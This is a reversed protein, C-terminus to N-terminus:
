HGSLQYHYDITGIVNGDQDKVLKLRGIGDYIYYNIRNNEDCNSTIGMTPTYTYTVMQAAIPYLRLEDIQGSGSISISTQGSIKHEFCNWGNYSRILVPYGSQTGTIAYASANKTWYSLYYTQGTTLGSKSIPFGTLLYSAQGTPATADYSATGTFTWNGHDDGEFSTYAISATDTNTVQAVPYANRYNWLYAVKKGNVKNQFSLNLRNDYNFNVQPKYYSDPNASFASFLVYSNLEVQSITAPMAAKIGSSGNVINYENRTAAILYENSDAKKITVYKEIVPSVMNNREMWLVGKKWATPNSSIGADMTALYNSYSTDRTNIAAASATLLTSRCNYGSAISAFTNQNVTTNNHFPEYPRLATEESYLCNTTVSGVNAMNKNFTTDINTRTNWTGFYYDLPYKLYTTVKQGKSDYTVTRTPFLHDPNDYFFNTTTQKAAIGNNDYDIDQQQMLSTYKSELTYFDSGGKVDLLDAAQTDDPSALESCGLCGSCITGIAKIKKVKYTSFSSKSFTQYQSTSSKVPLYINNLFQYDIRSYQKVEMVSNQTGFTYDTRGTQQMNQSAETVSQYFFQETALESLTSRVGSQYTLNDYNACDAHLDNTSIGESTLDNGNNYYYQKTLLPLGGNSTNDYSTIQKIRLGPADAGGSSGVTRFLYTVVGTVPSSNYPCQVTLSYTGAPLLVSDSYAEQGPPSSYRTVNYVDLIQAASVTPPITNDAQNSETIKVWQPFSISFTSSRGTTVGGNVHLTDAVVKTLTQPADNNSTVVNGSQNQEYQLVSYGGTPYTIKSLMGIQSYQMHPSRDAYPFLAPSFTGAPFLMQNSAGNYYGWADIGRNSNDPLVTTAGAYEFYYNTSDIFPTTQLITVSQLNLKLNAGTGFYAHKLNIQKNYTGDPSNVNIINLSKGGTSGVLDQRDVTSGTFTITGYKSSVSGLLLADIHDGDFITQSMSHGTTNLGNATLGNITYSDMFVTPQKYTYPNYFFSVTDKTDASIIKSVYWASKHTPVVAASSNAKHYTTEYDLFNYINGKDDTLQFGAGYPVIQINQYPYIYAKGKILIFKGSYGGVNFVYLDPEADVAQNFVDVLFPQNWILFNPTIFDDFHASTGMSEDVQGKVIRTIVGGGAVSWGLGVWSPVDIPKYGNYGYSLSFPITFSPTKIEFIPVSVNVMGTYLTVPLLGYKGMAEAEPSHPIIDSRMQTLSPGQDEDGTGQVTGVKMDLFRYQAFSTGSTLVLALIISCFIRM